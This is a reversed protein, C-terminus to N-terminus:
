GKICMIQKLEAVVLVLDMQEEMVKDIDKYAGPIEDLVGEDKRCEVGDTQKELDSVNFNARAKTRSMRRGAGHSCSNFSDVNGLGQVIYSRTGMSGPIIGYEGERARIAGKRTVWINHGFHNEIESYNHHCNVEFLRECKGNEGYVAFSLDKIIRNMMEIRNNFAYSQAWLLDQIYLDFEKTGQALYALDPDPLDIFYNKMIGKAKDIHIEALTKGVNRSGSHLMIWVNNEKDLCIEIFHNGGGLSGMQAMSKKIMSDKYRERVNWGSWDLVSDSLEKNGNHGVPVSREISHRIEKIKERVIEHNLNTKVAMMGCGIDVGVASPIIAGQTAIVSGITAGRGFHVDPMASIHKFIFPLNAVNKLQQLAEDEIDQTWIKIPKKETSIVQM